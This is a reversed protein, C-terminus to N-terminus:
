ANRAAALRLLIATRRSKPLNRAALLADVTTQIDDSLPPAKAAPTPPEMVREIPALAILRAGADLQGPLIAGLRALRALAQDPLRAYDKASWTATRHETWARHARWLGVRQGYPLSSTEDFSYWHRPGGSLPMALSLPLMHKPSAASQRAGGSKALFLEFNNEFRRDAIRPELEALTPVRWLPNPLDDLEGYRDFLGLPTLGAEAFRTWWRRGTLRAERPHLFLDAFRADNALTPGGIRALRETLPPADQAVRRLLLRADAFNASTAADLGLMAFARQLHTIFRRAESNYVMLRLTGGPALCRSLRVLTSGPDSMHHLVGYADVHAFTGAASRDLYRDLDDHVFDTSKLTSALRIRARTLSQRSLDLSVVHHRRPEWRRIVYPLIEGSGGILIQVREGPRPAVTPPGIGLLDAALSGALGSHALYGERWRPRALLPYHPYPHREYLDRVAGVITESARTM